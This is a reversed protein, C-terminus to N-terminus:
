WADRNVVQVRFVPKAKEAEKMEYEQRTKAPDYDRWLWALIEPLDLSPQGGSHMAEGDQWIMVPSPRAPDVGPSAYVWHDATM